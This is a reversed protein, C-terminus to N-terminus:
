CRRLMLQPTYYPDLRDRILSETWAIDDATMYDVYGGVKGRRTKFSEPDSPDGSQMGRHQISGRMELHRMNAFSGYDVARRIVADEVEPLGIFRAVNRLCTEADTHLDEYRVLHFGAPVARNAAWVNYHQIMTAVSGRRSRLYTSLGQDRQGRRRTFEFYNSVALDRIDRVLYIVKLGRYESKNAVLEEPTKVQPNDDHHMRICPIGLASDGMRQIRFPDTPVVGFHETLIRGLM